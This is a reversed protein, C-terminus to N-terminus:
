IMIYIYINIDGQHNLLPHSSKGLNGKQFLYIVIFTFM